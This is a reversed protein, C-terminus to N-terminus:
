QLAQEIEPPITRNRNKLDTAIERTKSLYLAVVDDAMHLRRADRSLAYLIVLSHNDRIDAFESAAVDMEVPMTREALTGSFVRSQVAFQNGKLVLAGGWLQLSHTRTWFDLLAANGAAHTDACECLRLADLYALGRNAAKLAEVTNVIRDNLIAKFDGFANRTQDGNTADYPLLSIVTRPTTDAPVANVKMQAALPMACSNQAIVWDKGNAQAVLSLRANVGLEAAPLDFFEAACNADLTAQYSRGIPTPPPAVLAAPNLFYVITFVALAGGATVVKGLTVNLIGPIVVAAGACALALVVRFVFYQFATPNPFAIALVLLTVVFTVGFAFALITETKMGGRSQARSLGRPAKPPPPSVTM